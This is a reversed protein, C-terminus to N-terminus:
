KVFQTTSGSTASCVSRRWNARRRASREKDELGFLQVRAMVIGAATRVGYLDGAMAQDWVSRLLVDLRDGELRRLELVSNVTEKKLAPRVLRLRTVVVGSPV